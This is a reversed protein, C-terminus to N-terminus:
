QKSFFADDANFMSISWVLKFKSLGIGGNQMRYPYSLNMEQSYVIPRFPKLRPFDDALKNEHYIQASDLYNFTHCLGGDTLTTTFIDACRVVTGASLLCFPTFYLDSMIDQLRPLINGDIQVKRQKIYEGFYRPPICYNSVTYLRQIEEESLNANAFDESELQDHIYSYNLADRKLEFSSCITITPFPIDSIPTAENSFNIIAPSYLWRVYIQYILTCCVFISIGFSILWWSKEIWHRNEEGM